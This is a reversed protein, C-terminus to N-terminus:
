ARPPGTRRSTVLPERSLFVVAQAGVQRVSVQRVCAKKLPPSYHLWNHKDKVRRLACLAFLAMNNIIIIIVIIIIINHTYIYIIIIIIKIIIM